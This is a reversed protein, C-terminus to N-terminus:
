RNNNNNYQQMDARVYERMKETEPGGCVSYKQMKIDFLKCHIIFNELRVILASMDSM